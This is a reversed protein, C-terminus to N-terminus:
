ETVVLLGLRVAARTALSSKSMIVTRSRGVLPGSRRRTGVVSTRHGCLGTGGRRWCQRDLLEDLLEGGAAAPGASVWALWLMLATAASRTIQM